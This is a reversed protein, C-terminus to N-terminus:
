MKVWEKVTFRPCDTEGVRTVSGNGADWALTLQNVAGHQYAFTLGDDEILTIPLGGDGYVRVNLTYGAVDATHLTPQALPLVAGGKVFVPITDLPAAITVTQGGTYAAGTYFDYWQGIPLYVPREQEGTTVPAVLLRDGMLYQDDIKWTHEDNPYDMVLARFPPLGETYYRYFAAYLYPILQMRLRLLDRCADEVQQWNDTFQDANNADVKWQKWPAHKIYWANILAQPSFVVSQLRRILEEASGADRVEPCWLLGSFGSNVVGRIFDKHAYLDSYLVFPYPAALAHSSRVEHYSRQDRRRYIDDVMQQFKQGMLCHMQEGDLGSPFATLEPYSWPMPIFDSNDCEDLKYGSIGLDIHAREFHEGMIQRAEPLTLDPILGQWVEFDGAYPLLPQYIPSSPHTFIHTWLNVHYHERALQQAMEGPTPFKDSWTFTCSYSHAQWGPELGLVDCPIEERRFADAFDLVQQQDFDGRCRYWAGLGWRPPLCGGGSFLNYRQVAECMGPGAFLYVDVGEAGPIEVFVSDAQGTNRTLYLEDSSRSIETADTEHPSEPSLRRASGCYFTAYRATDILVGYGATTVYFPVPAHSDGLDAKPDSNVRLTKKLGRQNFSLLQLGLGYIQECEGLALSVQYGRTTQKGAIGAEALPSETPAPLRGLADAAPLHHRLAVPTVAEPEGLRIRWVGPYIQEM